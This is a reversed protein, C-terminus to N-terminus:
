KEKDLWDNFELITNKYIFYLLFGVGVLLLCFWTLPMFMGWLQNDLDGDIVMALLIISGIFWEFALLELSFIGSIILGLLVMGNWFKVSNPVEIFDQKIEQLFNKM